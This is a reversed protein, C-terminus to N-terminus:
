DHSPGGINDKELRSVLEQILGTAANPNLRNPNNVKARKLYSQRLEKNDIGESKSINFFLRNIQNVQNSSALDTGRNSNSTKNKNTDPSLAGDNASKGDDDNESNVGFTTSLSYRRAYTMASGIDQAKGSTKIETWSSPFCYGDEHFVLTRVSVSGSETKTDQLWALGTDKIGKNIADILDRLLVYDYHTSKYKVTGNEKPAIVQQQFKAMGKAFAGRQSFDANEEAM